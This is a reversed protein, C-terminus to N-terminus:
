GFRRDAPLNRHTLVGPRPHRPVPRQAREGRLGNDLRGGRLGRLSCRDQLALVVGAGGGAGADEGNAVVLPRGEGVWVAAAQSGQADVPVPLVDTHEAFRGSDEAGPHGAVAAAGAGAHDAGAAAVVGGPHHAKTAAAVTTAHEGVTCAAAGAHVRGAAGAGAGPHDALAAVAVTNAYGAGAAAAVAGAHLAAGGAHAVAHEPQGGGAASYEAPGQAGAPYPHPRLVGAPPTARYALPGAKKLLLPTRVTLAPVEFTVLVPTGSVPALRTSAVRWCSAAPTQIRDATGFTAPLEKVTCRFLVAAALM